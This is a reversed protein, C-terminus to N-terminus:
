LEGKLYKQNLESVQDNFSEFMKEIQEWYKEYAKLVKMGCDNCMNLNSSFSIIAGIDENSVDCLSDVWITKSSPLLLFPRHPLTMITTGCSPCFEKKCVICKNIHEPSKHLAGCSECQYYTNTVKETKEVKKM